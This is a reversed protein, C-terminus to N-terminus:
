RVAAICLVRAMKGNEYRCGSFHFPDEYNQMPMDEKYIGIPTFDIYDPLTETRISPKGTPKLRKAGKIYWM